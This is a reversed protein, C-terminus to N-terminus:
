QERAYAPVGLGRHRPDGERAAGSAERAGEWGVAAGMRERGMHAMHAMGEGPGMALPLVQSFGLSFAGNAVIHIINVQRSKRHLGKFSM